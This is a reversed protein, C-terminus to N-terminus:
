LWGSCNFAGCSCPVAEGEDQKGRADDRRYCLEEGPEIRRLAFFAAHPLRADWHLSLVPQLELNPQCSFNAFASVNRVHLADIAHGGRAARSAQLSMLYVDTDEVCRVRRAAEAASVHEGVYEMVFAGKPIPERARLGWGLVDGREHRFVEVRFALGREPPCPSSAAGGEGRPRCAATCEIRFGDPAGVHRGGGTCPRPPKRAWAEAADANICHRSYVFSNPLAGDGTANVWPVPLAEAGESLDACSLILRGGVM